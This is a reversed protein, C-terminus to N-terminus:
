QVIDIIIHQDDMRWASVKLATASVTQRDWRMAVEDNITQLLGTHGTQGTM